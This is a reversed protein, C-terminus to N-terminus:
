EPAGKRASTSASRAREAGSRAREAGSLARWVREPGAPLQDIDVGVADRIANLVAPAAPLMVHEGVGKAGYPGAPDPVEVTISQLESPMDMTTPILYESFNRTRVRGDDRLKFEEMLAYGLGLGVGGGVQGEIMQPNMARGVDQSSVM